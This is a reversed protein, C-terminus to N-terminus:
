IEGGTGVTGWGTVWTHAGTYLTSDAAALCVPSIYDTFTVPSSLKLLAIDSDSPSAQDYDPHVIVETLTRNVENPNALEQSQRGLFVTVLSLNFRSYSHIM